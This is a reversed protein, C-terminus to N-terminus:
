ACNNVFPKQCQGEPILVSEAPAAPPPQSNELGGPRCGTRNGPLSTLLQPEECQEQENGVRRIDRLDRDPSSKNKNKNTIEEM